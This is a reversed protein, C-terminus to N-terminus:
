QICNKDMAIYLFYMGGEQEFNFFVQISSKNHCYLKGVKKFGLSLLKKNNYNANYDSHKFSLLFYSKSSNRSEIKKVEGFQSELLEVMNELKRLNDKKIKEGSVILYFLFVLMLILLPFFLKQLYKNDLSIIMM